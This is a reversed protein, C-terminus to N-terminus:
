KAPEELPSFVAVRMDDIEQAQQAEQAHILMDDSATRDALGRSRPGAASIQLFFFPCGLPPIPPRYDTSAEYDMKEKEEADGYLFGVRYIM